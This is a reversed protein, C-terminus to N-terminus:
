TRAAADRLRQACAPVTALAHAIEEPRTAWGLSFRVARRAEASTWGMALLVPSPERAGSQCAVGVSASVGVEDLLFALEEGDLGAFRLHASGAVRLARPASERAGPVDAILGDVLRDRLAAVRAVTAPRQALTLAAAVGTAVIGAVNETGPRLGREQGGGHAVAAIASTAPARVVLAGVGKPGGFKHASMSVLDCGGCLTAVDLWPVAQVADCHVLAEPARERVLAVVDAVPQVVGVESNVAMVSVLRVEPTLLEALADLDVVGDADVPAVRAGLRAAPRLVAPHEVASVVIRGGRREHVGSIALNDAETGGSTFVVEGPACGLAAAVADRADDVARRARRGPGHAGSPNAFEGALFPLMAEVAEPRMPTTAANDLYAVDGHRSAGSM